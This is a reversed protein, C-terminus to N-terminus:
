GTTHLEILLFVFSYTRQTCRLYTAWIQLLWGLALFQYNPVQEVECGTCKWDSKCVLCDVFSSVHLRELRHTLNVCFNLSIIIGAKVM